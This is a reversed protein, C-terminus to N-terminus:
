PKPAKPPAVPNPSPYVRFPPNGSPFETYPTEPAQWNTRTFRMESIASTQMGEKFARAKVTTNRDIHFPQQYLASEAGPERGDLTYRITAGPTRCSFSVEQTQYFYAGRPSIEPVWVIDPDTVPAPQRTGKTPVSHIDGTNFDIVLPDLCMFRKWGKEQGTKQHYLHWWEGARDMIFSGHGPGWINESHPIVPNDPNKTFPGLPSPATAYGVSYFVTQGNSGSYFLYYTGNLKHMWPGENIQFDHREWDQSIEFCKTVPGATEIPSKMPVCYMTFDPTNTFYLYLRKDDDRFVHADIGPIVLFGLDEFMGDPKDAVAVGIKYRNTYYLYFKGDEPHHYVEPAWAGKLSEPLIVPGEEWNVLDNSRYVIRKSNTTYAYYTGQHYIVAPDAGSDMVPNSFSEAAFSTPLLFATLFTPIFRKILLCVQSPFLRKM